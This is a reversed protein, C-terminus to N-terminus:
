FRVANIIGGALKPEFCTSKPPMTLGSDSVRMIDAMKPPLIAFAVKMGEHTSKQLGDLGKTGSIFTIRDDHQPDRIGLIDRFVKNQIISVDLNGVPDSSNREGIYTLKYWTDDMVMSYEGINKPYEPESGLREVQFGAQRLADYFQDETLGNLDKIARNYDLILMQDSPFIAGMFFRNEEKEEPTESNVYCEGSAAIRHHGDCIYLSPIREFFGDMKDIFDKDSIAWIEHRIGGRDFFDIESDHSFTYAELIGALTPELSSDYTLLIPEISGGVRKIKTAQTHIKDMRTLEHRKINSEIYDEIDLCAVLGTQSHNALSIRYIYLSDEEEKLLVGEMIYNRLNEKARAQVFTEDAAEEPSLTLNVHSVHLMSFPNALAQASKDSSGADLHHIYVKEATELDPRVARFPRIKPM